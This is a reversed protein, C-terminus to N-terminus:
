HQTRDRNDQDAAQLIQEDTKTGDGVIESPEAMTEEGGAVRRAWRRAPDSVAKWANQLNAPIEYGALKEGAAGAAEQAAGAASKAGEVTADKAAGLKSAAFDTAKSGGEGVKKAGAAIAARNSGVAHMAAFPTALAAGEAAAEGIQGWDPAAGPEVGQQRVGEAGAQLVAQEPFAALAGGPIKVARALGPVVNQLAASATGSVLADRLSVPRGAERQRGIVGGACRWPDEGGAGAGARREAVGGVGDGVGPRRAPEGAQGGRAPPRDRRRSRAPGPCGHWGPRCPDGRRLDSSCVDSSWDGSLRTHRRRSSFFFFRFIRQCSLSM